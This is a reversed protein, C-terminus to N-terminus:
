TLIKKSKSRILVEEIRYNDQGVGIQVLQKLVLTGSKANHTLSLHAPPTKKYFIAPLPLDKEKYDAFPNL